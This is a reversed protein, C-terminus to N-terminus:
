VLDLTIMGSWIVGILGLVLGTASYHDRAGGRLLRFGLFTAIIAVTSCAVLLLFHLRDDSLSFLSMPELALERGSGYEGSDEPLVSYLIPRAQERIYIYLGLGLIGIAGLM